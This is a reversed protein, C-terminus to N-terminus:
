LYKNNIDAHAQATSMSWWFGAGKRGRRRRRRETESKTRGRKKLEAKKREENAGDSPALPQTNPFDGEKRGHKGLASRKEGEAAMGVARLM